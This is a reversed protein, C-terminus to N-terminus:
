PGSGPPWHMSLGATRGVMLLAPEATNTAKSTESPLMIELSRHRWRASVEIEDFLHHGLMAMAGGASAGLFGTVALAYALAGATQSSIHMACLRAVAAYAIGCMLLGSARLGFDARRSRHWATM